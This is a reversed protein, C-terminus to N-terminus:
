TPPAAALGAARNWRWARTASRPAQTQVRVRAQLMAVLEATRQFPNAIACAGDLSLAACVEGRVEAVVMPVPGPPPASDLQALRRLAPADAPVALRITLSEGPDPSTRTPVTPTRQM